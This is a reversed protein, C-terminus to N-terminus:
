PKDGISLTVRRNVGRGAETKNSELPRTDAFGIARLREPALGQKILYRVFYSARASSLEWNSPIRPTSIPINDTHGEVAIYLRTDKLVDVVPAIATVASDKFQVDGSDFLLKENFKIRMGNQKQEIEIGWSIGALALRQELEIRMSEFPSPTDAEIQGPNDVTNIKESIVNKLVQADDSLSTEQKDTKTGDGANVLLFIFLTLLLTILDMYTIVWDDPADQSSNSSVAIDRRRPTSSESGIDESDSKLPEVQSERPVLDDSSPKDDGDKNM